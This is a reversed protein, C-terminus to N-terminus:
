LAPKVELIFSTRGTRGDDGLGQVVVRYRGAQDSTYFTLSTDAGPQTRVAPNWYLLNRFDPHRSQAAIPTDYRPAYFERQSQLGDYEQLLARADPEFGALDGKYTSYSVLGNHLVPGLFYRSTQVDLRRVKLPDFAMIRNTSFVPVGDLLVLPNEPTVSNQYDPVLFHFGDRHKRVLVGPVYERMVEEMVKFRTYKDLFYRESPTGYFAASDAAPALSHVPPAAPFRQQVQAQAHRRALGALDRAARASPAPPSAAAAVPVPPAFPSALEVRSLSDLRLDPQAVLLRPGYLDPMELTFRGNAGSVASYLQVRRSPSAVYVPLSALPAGTRSSLVRGQLLPGNLEPPYALSDARGTLVDEWRFRSWGQTLMLNDAAAAAEPGPRCYRAPHEVRGPLDAALWLYSIIDSGGAASLSDLQYVAVSLSAPRTGPAALRLTVPQRSAYQSKDAQARLALTDTPPQFYLRECVPQRRSNFLTFHSVGPALSRAPVLVEARGGSLPVATAVAVRQRAHALLYLLETGTTGGRAQVVVRLQGAEAAELHLGYGQAQVAPLPYTATQGGPLQILARYVTGAQTPTFSFSGLGDPQPRFEAVRRGAADVVSGTAAVPRGAADLLQFGVLGAVGQVLCGGEPFFRAEVAPAPRPAAPAGGAPQQTNVITVEDHFFYGPGFNRMWSTYARVTYRGTPLSAPLELAGQGRADRLTLKAQVVPQRTADLVEVYAVTSAPLPRQTTGEVAYLALWLTEGSLYAPRDLHGFLKEVPTRAAYHQFRAAVSALSDAQGRAPAGALLLGGLALWRGARGALRAKGFHESRKTVALHKM